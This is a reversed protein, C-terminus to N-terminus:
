AGQAADGRGDVRATALREALAAKVDNCRRARAKAEPPFAREVFVSSLAQGMPETGYRGGIVEIVHRSRPAATQQRAAATTSISIRAARLRAPLKSATERLVQWRLYTRWEESPREAAERAFAQM